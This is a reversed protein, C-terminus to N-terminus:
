PLTWLFEKTPSDPFATIILNGVCTPDKLRAAMERPIDMAAASCDIAATRDSAYQSKRLVLERQDSLNLSPSGRGIFQFSIGEVVIEFRLSGSNQIHGRLEPLLDSCSKTGEVGIICDAKRSIEKEKTIEVTNKHLALINPHGRFSIEERIPTSGRSGMQELGLTRM